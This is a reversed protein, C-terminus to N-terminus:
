SVQHFVHAGHGTALGPPKVGVVAGIEAAQWPQWSSRAVAECASASVVAIPSLPAGQWPESPSKGTVATWARCCSASFPMLRRHVGIFASLFVRVQNSQRPHSFLIM